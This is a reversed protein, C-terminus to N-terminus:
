KKKADLTHMRMHKALSILQDWIWQFFSKVDYGNGVQILLLVLKSVELQIRELLSQSTVHKFQMVDIYSGVLLANKKIYLFLYIM